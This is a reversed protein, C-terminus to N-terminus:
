SCGRGCLISCGIRGFAEFGMVNTSRVVKDTSIMVEERVESSLEARCVVRTSCVNNALGAISNAEDLPVHKYAAAHFVVQVQHAIFLQQVLVADASSGLVSILECANLGSAQLEQEIAYLFPESIDLLILQSPHLNM